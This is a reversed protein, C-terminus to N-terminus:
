ILQLFKTANRILFLHKYSFKNIIHKNELLTCYNCYTQEDMVCFRLDPHHM